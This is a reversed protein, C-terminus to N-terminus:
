IWIIDLCFRMGKMWFSRPSADDFIFIMGHGPKLGDRFGLGRGRLDGTDAIEAEVVTDGIKLTATRSTWPLELRWAPLVPAAKIPVVSLVTLLGIGVVIAISLNRISLIVPQKQCRHFLKM